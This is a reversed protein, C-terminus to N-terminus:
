QFVGFVECFIQLSNKQKEGRSFAQFNEKFFKKKLDGSFSTQLGKKKQLVSAGTDKARAKLM